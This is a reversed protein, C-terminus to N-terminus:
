VARRWLVNLAKIHAASFAEITNLFFQQKIEDPTVGKAINLVANRLYERKERQHTRIAIVTAQTTASVFAENGVLDELKLGAVKKGVELDDCSYYPPEDIGRDDDCRRANATAPV